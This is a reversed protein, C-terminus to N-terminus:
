KDSLFNYNIWLYDDRFHIRHYKKDKSYLISNNIYGYCIGNITYVRQSESIIVNDKIRVKRKYIWKGKRIIGM